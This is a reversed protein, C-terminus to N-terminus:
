QSPLGERKWRDFEAAAYPLNNLTVLRIAADLAKAIGHDMMRKADIGPPPGFHTEDAPEVIRIKHHEGSEILRKVATEIDEIPKLKIPPPIPIGNLVEYYVDRWREAAAKWGPSAVNEDDWGGANAIINWATELLDLLKRNGRWEASAIAQAMVKVAHGPPHPQGGEAPSSSVIEAEIERARELHADKVPIPELADLIVEFHPIADIQQQDLVSHHWEVLMEHLFERAAKLETM